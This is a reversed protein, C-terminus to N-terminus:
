GPFNGVALKIFLNLPHGAPEPLLTQLFAVAPKIIM